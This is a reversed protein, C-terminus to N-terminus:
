KTYEFMEAEILLEIRQTEPEMLVSPDTGDLSVLRSSLANYEEMSDSALLISKGEDRLKNLIDWLKSKTKSDICTTAEDLLIVSPSGILAIVVSLIQKNGGSLHSVKQGFYQSLNLANAM